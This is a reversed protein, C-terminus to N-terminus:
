ATVTQFRDAEAVSVCSTSNASSVPGTGGCRYRWQSWEVARSRMSGGSHSGANSRGGGGRMDCVSRVGRIVVRESELRRRFDVRRPGRASTEPDPVLRSSGSTRAACRPGRKRVSATIAPCTNGAIAWSGSDKRRARTATSM